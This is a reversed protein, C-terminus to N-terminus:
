RCQKAKLPGVELESISTTKPRCPDPGAGAAAVASCPEAATMRCLPEAESMRCGDGRPVSWELM